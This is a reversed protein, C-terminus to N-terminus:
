ECSNRLVSGRTGSDLEEEEEPPVLELLLKPPPLEPRRRRSGLSSIRSRSTISVPDDRHRRDM